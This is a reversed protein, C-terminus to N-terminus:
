VVYGGNVGFVQGTVFSARDSALSVACSAADEGTGIRMLPTEDAFADIDEKSYISNMKSEILGPAICNVRIGSPGVEKSLAKTLGIVASKTLSYATECSAGVEGWISSINIINGYHNKVMHGIAERCMYFAAKVNIDMLRDLEEDSTDQILGTYSVGACNVVTDIKGFAGVSEAFARRCEDSSTLDAKIFIIKGEKAFSELNRVESENKYYLASVCCGENLFARACANGIAGSAGTILINKM